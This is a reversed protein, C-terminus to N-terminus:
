GRGCRTSGSRLGRLRAGVRGGRAPPGRGGAWPGRVCGRLCPLVAPSFALRRPTGRSPENPGSRVSTCAKWRGAAEDLTLLNGIAHVEHHPTLRDAIAEHRLAHLERRRPQRARTGRNLLGLPDARSPRSTSNSPSGSGDDPRSPPLPSTPRARLSRRTVWLGFSLLEVDDLREAIAIAQDAASRRRRADGECDAYVRVLPQGSPSSSHRHSGARSSRRTPRSRGCRAGSTSEFSLEAYLEGLKAPDSTLEVAKLMAEWFAAMSSSPTSAASRTGSSRIDPTLEVARELLGGADDLDFRRVALEAARRPWRLASIRLRVAEEDRDRWALDAIEPDVAEAYHYALTGARGDRPDVGELWEAYRCPAARAGGEAPRRVCRGTHARAQLRARARRRPCLGARRADAGRGGLGRARFGPRRSSRGIVAAARLPGEGRARPPRHARCSRGPRLRFGLGGADLAWGGNRWALRATSFTLSCRRSSSRTERPM